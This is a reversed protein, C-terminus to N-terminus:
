DNKVEVDFSESEGKGTLIAVKLADELDDAERDSLILTYGQENAWKILEM